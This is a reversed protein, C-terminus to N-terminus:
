RRKTGATHHSLPPPSALASEHRLPLATIDKNKPERALVWAQPSERPLHAAVSPRTPIEGDCDLDNSGVVHVM